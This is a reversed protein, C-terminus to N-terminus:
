RSLWDRWGSANWGKEFEEESFRQVAWSRARQRMAFEEQPSLSLVTHLAAAFTEPTTAHYGASCNEFSCHFFESARSIVQQNAKIHYSLTM